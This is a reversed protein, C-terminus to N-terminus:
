KNSSLINFTSNSKESLMKSIIKGDRMKINRDAMSMIEPDHTAVIFTTGYEDRLEKMLSIIRKGTEFDLHATPEDALVIDPDNILARAIAVRQQEGVSLQSPRHKVREMLGVREILELAREKLERHDIKATYLPLMVNELVNLFDILNITQFVFGINERRWLAAENDGFRTIDQDKIYIRGKNPKILAALLMLLTTKGSGSPGFLVIFEEEDVSFSVDNVAFIDRGGVRYVKTLSEVRIFSM